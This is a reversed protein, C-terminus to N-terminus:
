PEWRRRDVVKSDDLAIGLGPEEPLSLDGDVPERYPAHFYQKTPQACVLFEVEPVVSAPLAGALHLAALLSHGHAVVPVDFSSALACIKLQETIGGCWDPDTQVIDLARAELLEKVQWRTYVHEGTAIPVPAADRIRRLTGAREPPVPEELWAPEVAALKRAMAIAYDATWRMVVDFMLRYHPGVAERVAFALDLNAAMGTAGDEPGYAFFWKQAAYGMAAYKQATAAAADPEVSHGLTSAYAPVRERTPGGLVRWLPLELVKGKLDWLACDIPSLGTMFLGSRGHRDLRLMQDHIAETALPDKGVLSPGLTRRIVDAQSPQIPGFTGTPGDDTVVDVYLAHPVHGTGDDATGRVEAIVVDRIQM